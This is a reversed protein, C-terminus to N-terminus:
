RLLDMRGSSVGLSGGEAAMNMTGQSDVVRTLTTRYDKNAVDEWALADWGAPNRGGKALIWIWCKLILMDRVLPDQVSNADIRNAMRLDFEVQNEAATLERMLALGQGDSSTWNGSDPLYSRLMDLTVGHEYKRRAIEFFTYHQRTVGDLSYLWEIRYPQGPTNIKTSDQILTADVTFSHRIGKFASGTAYDFALESELDIVDTSTNIGVVTVIEQRGTQDDTVLYRRFLEIGTVDTLNMRRRNAQSIGADASTTTDVTDLTSTGEFDPDSDHSLGASWVKYTAAAAPPGDIILEASPPYFELTQATQNYLLNVHEKYLTTM